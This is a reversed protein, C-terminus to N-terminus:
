DDYITTECETCNGNEDVGTEIAIRKDCGPCNTPPVDVEETESNWQEDFCDPHYIGGVNLQSVGGDLPHVKAYDIVICRSNPGIQEDCESCHYGGDPHRMFTGPLDTM